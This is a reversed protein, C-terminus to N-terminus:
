ADEPKARPDMRFSDGDEDDPRTVATVRCRSHETEICMSPSDFPREVMAGADESRDHESERVGRAKSGSATSSTDVENEVLSGGLPTPASSSNSPHFPICGTAGEMWPPPAAGRREMM